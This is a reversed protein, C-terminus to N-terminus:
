VAIREYEEATRLKEVAENSTKTEVGYSVLEDLLETMTNFSLAEDSLAPTAEQKWIETDGDDHVEVYYRM